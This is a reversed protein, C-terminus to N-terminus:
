LTETLRLSPSELRCLCVTFCLLRGNQFLGSRVSRVVRSTYNLRYSSKDGTVIHLSNQPLRTTYTDSNVTTVVTCRRDAVVEGGIETLNRM